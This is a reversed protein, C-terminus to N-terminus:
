RGSGLADYVVEFHKRRSLPRCERITVLDGVKYRNEEDHALFKKSRVIFKKYMPHRVRREVRVTVTKDAVDAVVTGRLERKPV